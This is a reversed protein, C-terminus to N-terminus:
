PLPERKTSPNFKGCDTCVFQRYRQTTTYKWGRSQLNPGGCARCGDPKGAILALNPHNSVWPRLTLYVKETARVDQINYKKMESWAAPNGKLCETWLEMGPFKRHKSKTTGALNPGLWELKNSTFKFEKKAVARTDVHQFPKPPRLGHLAFRAYIRPIDFKRGNQTVIVDAEDLKEHIWKILKKDNRVNSEGSTDMYQVRENGLEKFACALITADKIIMDNPINTDWLQWVYAEYPSTEIDLTYILPKTGM